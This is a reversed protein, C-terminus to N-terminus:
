APPTMSGAARAAIVARALDASKEVQRTLALDEDSEIDICARVPLQVVYECARESSELLSMLEDSMGYAIRFDAVCRPDAREIPSQDSPQLACM